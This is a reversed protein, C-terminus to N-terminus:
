AIFGLTRAVAVLVLAVGIAGVTKSARRTAISNRPPHDSSDPPSEITGVWVQLRFLAASAATILVMGAAFLLRAEDAFLPTGTRRDMWIFM